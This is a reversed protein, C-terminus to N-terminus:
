QSAARRRRLADLLLVALCGIILGAGAGAATLVLKRPRVPKEPVVAPDIVRFAFESQANALMARKMEAEILKVGAERVGAVELGPLRGRLYALNRQAEALTQRRLEINARAVLENAWAAAAAPDRWEISLTVLGTQRDAELQRVRKDFLDFAKLPTPPDGPGFWGAQEEPPLLVPLLRRERIFRETFARSTLVAKYKEVASDGPGGLGVIAGLGGLQGSLLRGAGGFLEDAPVPQLLVEARYIPRQGAAWAFTAAAVAITILAVLWARRWLIMILDVFGLDARAAPPPVAANM